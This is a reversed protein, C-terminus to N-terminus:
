SRGLRETEGYRMGKLACEQLTQLDVTLRARLCRPRWQEVHMRPMDVVFEVPDDPGAGIVGKFSAHMDRWRIPGSVGHVAFVVRRNSREVRVEVFSQFFPAQNFDFMGSLTETSVPWNGFRRTWAWFPWKWLPTEADLKARVAEPGPYFAWTETPPAGPWGLAGGISLYAGGGGNVFHYVPRRSASGNAYDVYYEFAHTDGAMLVDVGARELTAYLGAFAVDGVSTDTGAAYKPHGLIVMTFKGRARELAGDLWVRQEDDLTRRIGTDIAILVFDSTQIEFFPGHQGAIRIGYLERLRQAQGLLRDIRNRTTSTLHRDTEVRAMLAARAAKPELFNANFGELADFWDHNGPIAFIPKEFGKFPLYFNREYDEMAGAPYIVDSAIVLFKVEARRGVDLLRNVLAYQSSDGEGPDGIVIFSFDGTEIGPPSVRFLHDSGGRYASRIGEVMAARWKDVRLETVKQYFASAWSETNFYWTFGWIPNMAAFLVALPLGLRLVVAGAAPLSARADRLSGTFALRADTWKHILRRPLDHMKADEGSFRFRWARRELPVSLRRWALRLPLVLLGGLLVAMIFDGGTAVFPSILGLWTDASRMRGLHTAFMVFAAVALWYLETQTVFPASEARAANAAAFLEHKGLGLKTYPHVNPVEAANDDKPEPIPSVLMRWGAAVTYGAVAVGIATEFSVSQWLWWGILAILLNSVANVATVTRSATSGRGVMAQGAKLAGDIALFALFLAVVAAAVLSPSVYLLFAGAIALFGAAYSAPRARLEPRSFTTYLDVGGVVFMPLSLFQLSWTGIAFPAALAALGVVILGAGITM